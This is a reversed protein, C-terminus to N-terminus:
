DIIFRVNRCLYIYAYLIFLIFLDLRFLGICHLLLNPFLFLYSIYSAKIQYTETKIPSICHILMKESMDTIPQYRRACVTLSYYSFMQVAVRSSPRRTKRGSGVSVPRYMWLLFCADQFKPILLPLVAGSASRRRQKRM